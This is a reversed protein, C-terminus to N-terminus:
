VTYKFPRIEGGKKTTKRLLKCACPVLFRTGKHDLWTCKTTVDCSISFSVAAPLNSFVLIYAFELVTPIPLAKTPQKGAAIAQFHSLKLKKAVQSVNALKHEDALSELIVTAMAKALAPTYEAERATDFIGDHM